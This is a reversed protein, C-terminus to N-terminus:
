EKRVFPDIVPMCFLLGGPEDVLQGVHEIDFGPMNQRGVLIGPIVKPAFALQRRVHIWQLRPKLVYFLAGTQGPDEILAQSSNNAVHEGEPTTPAASRGPRTAWPKQAGFM